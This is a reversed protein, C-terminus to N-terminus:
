SINFLQVDTKSRMILVAHSDDEDASGQLRPQHVALLEAAPPPRAEVSAAFGSLGVVFICTALGRGVIEVVGEEAVVLMEPPSDGHVIKVLRGREVAGFSVGLAM